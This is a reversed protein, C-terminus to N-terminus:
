DPYAGAARGLHALLRASDDAGARAPLPPAFRGARDGVPVLADAVEALGRALTAPLRRLDAPLPARVSRAVDHGHVGVELAATLVVTTAPVAAGGVEVVAVPRSWAEMLDRTKARLDAAPHASAVPRVLLAPSTPSLWVRGGAAETFADLADDLHALLDGLSWDACPTPRALDDVSVAALVTRTYAVAEALLEVGPPTSTM